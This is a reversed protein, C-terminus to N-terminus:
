SVKFSQFKIKKFVEEKNTSIFPPCGALLCYALIGISWVDCKEDYNGSLVEPAVYFSSGMVSHLDDESLHKRSM